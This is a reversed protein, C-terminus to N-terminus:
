LSTFCISLWYLYADNVQSQFLSFITLLFGPLQVQQYPENIRWQNRVSNHMCFQFVIFGKLRPVAGKKIKLKNQLVIVRDGTLTAAQKKVELGSFANRVSIVRVTSSNLHPAAQRKEYNVMEARCSSIPIVAWRCIMKVDLVARHNVRPNHNSTQLPLALGTREARARRFLLQWM